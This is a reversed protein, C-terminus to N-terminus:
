NPNNTWLTGHGCCLGCVVTTGLAHGPQQRRGTADCSKCPVQRYGTRQDVAQQDETITRFPKPLPETAPTALVEAIMEGVIGDVVSQALRYLEWARTDAPFKSSHTKSGAQVDVVWVQIEDTSARYATHVTFLGASQAYLKDLKRKLADAKSTKAKLVAPTLTVTM